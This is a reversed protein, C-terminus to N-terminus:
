MRHCSGCDPGPACAMTRYLLPLTDIVGVARCYPARPTPYDHQETGVVLQSFGGDRRPRLDPPLQKRRRLRARNWSGYTCECRGQKFHVHLARATWQRRLACVSLKHWQQLCCSM